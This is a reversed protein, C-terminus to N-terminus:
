INLLVHLCIFLHWAQLIYSLIYLHGGKEMTYVGQYFRRHDLWYVVECRETWKLWSILIGTGPHTDIDHVSWNLVFVINVALLLRPKVSQRQCAKLQLYTIGVEISFKVLRNSNLVCTWSVLERCGTAWTWSPRELCLTLPWCLRSNPMKPKLQDQICCRLCFTKSGFKVKLCKLQKFLRQSLNQLIPISHM